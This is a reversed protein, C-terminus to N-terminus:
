AWTGNCGCTQPFTVTQPPQVVYAPKPCQYGLQSILYNNQAEQSAKLQLNFIMQNQEAIKEDKRAGEMADLKAIIRDADTHGSQMLANTNMSDRYQTDCFGREVERSLGNAQTAMNYNVGSIGERIDCCCSAIQSQIANSTTLINTNVGNVLQAQTYFGDCLGNRITDVGREVGAFGTDIQRSLQSFDSTLVYNEQVGGGGYGNNGWGCFAFIFLIIIWWLGNQNGFMGGGGNIAAYDAPSLGENYSM